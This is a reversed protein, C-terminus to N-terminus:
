TFDLEGRLSRKLESVGPTRALTVLANWLDVAEDGRPIRNIVPGFFSSTEPRELDYTIIPTGVDPGTRSLALETESRILGDRTDDDAASAYSAPLGAAALAGAVLTSRDGSGEGFVLERGIGETHIKTGFATYVAAVGDNGHDERVSAAIRLIRLGVRHGARYQEPMEKGENVFLLSIFRWDISLDTQESVEVAWRSTLWAFPCVPDFFFEISNSM